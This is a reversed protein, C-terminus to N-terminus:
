RAFLENLMPIRKERRFERCTKIGAKFDRCADPRRDYISCSVKKGVEGKLFRCVVVHAKTMKTEIAPFYTNETTVYHEFEYDTLRAVDARTINPWGAQQEYPGCCAGCNTCQADTVDRASELLPLRRKTM